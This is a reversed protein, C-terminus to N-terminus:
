NKSSLSANMFTIQYYVIDRILEEKICELRNIGEDSYVDQIVICVLNSIEERSIVCEKLTVGVSEDVKGSWYILIVKTAKIEPVRGEICKLIESQFGDSNELVQTEYNLEDKLYNKFRRIDFLSRELDSNSM